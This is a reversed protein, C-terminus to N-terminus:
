NQYITTKVESTDFSLTENTETCFIIKDEIVEISAVNIIVAIKKSTKKSYVFVKM